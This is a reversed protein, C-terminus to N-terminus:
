KQHDVQSNINPYNGGLAQSIGFQSPTFIQHFESQTCITRHRQWFITSGHSCWSFIMALALSSIDYALGLTPLDVTLDWAGLFCRLKPHWLDNVIPFRFYTCNSMNRCRTWGKGASLEQQQYPYLLPLLIWKVGVNESLGKKGIHNLKLDWCPYTIVDMIFNPYFYSRWGLVGTTCGNFVTSSYIIGDRM